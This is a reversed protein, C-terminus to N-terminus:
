KPYRWDEDRLRDCIWDAIIKTLDIEGSMLAVAVNAADESDQKALWRQFETAFDEFDDRAADSVWDYFDGFRQHVYDYWADIAVERDYDYLEQVNLAYENGFIVIKCYGEVEDKFSDAVTTYYWDYVTEYFGKEKDFESILDKMLAEM